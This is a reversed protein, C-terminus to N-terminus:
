IQGAIQKKIEEFNGTKPVLVWIGKYQWTPPNVLFDDLVLRNIKADKLTFLFKGLTIKEAWNMDTTIVENLASVLRKVQSLNMLFSPDIIKEKLALIVQQQRKDRAFDTGEDGEAQRSRVFKLATIGDMHLWGKEFHLKEYRCAFTKDGNCPDNEKGTVPYYNDTFAQEVYIDVGDVLDIIKEFGSFDLLFAYHVPQGAIEEVASKAMVFGGGKQKVEGYHYASNIKDKLSPLWIDRPISILMVDLKKHSLSLFIVSDTLDSGDYTGGPIGFVAINTREKYNKISLERGFILNWFFQRSLSNAKAFSYIPLLSRYLSFVVICFIIILVTIKLLPFYKLIRRKFQQPM